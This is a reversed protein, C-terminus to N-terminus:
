LGPACPQGLFFEKIMCHVLQANEKSNMAMAIEQVLEGYDNYDKTIAIFIDTTNIIIVKLQVKRGAEIGFRLCWCSVYLFPVYLFIGPIGSRRFFPGLGM